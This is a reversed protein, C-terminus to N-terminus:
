PEDPRFRGEAQRGLPLASLASTVAPRNPRSVVSQPRGRPGSYLSIFGPPAVGASILPSELLMTDIQAHHIPLHPWAPWLAPTALYLLHRQRDGCDASATTPM